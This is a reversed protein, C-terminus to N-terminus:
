DGASNLAHYLLWGYSGLIPLVTLVMGFARGMPHILYGIWFCIRGVFFLSAMAPILVLSSTPMTVSLASWAIGALLTQEVTNTNYRLNIEMAYNSPSRTGDIADAYFGRRAAAVVGILLSLGPLVMWQALFALRDGVTDTPLTFAGFLSQSFHLVLGIICVAPAVGAMGILIKRLHGPQM